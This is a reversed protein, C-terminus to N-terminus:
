TSTASRTPPASSLLGGPPLAASVAGAVHHPTLRAGARRAARRPPPVVDADRTRWEELWPRARPGAARGERQRGSPRRGRAPGTSWPTCTTAPTPGARPRRVAVVEVDDRSLLRTVPRSLTPHGFVVVREIRAALDPDGLLLRYTRIANDGTRSGSTPEALLPWGAPRPSCGRRRGPTTGPSWSPACATARGARGARRTAGGTDDVPRRGARRRAREGLRRRDDPVLPEDFQVNLHVPGPRAGLRGAAVRRQPRRARAVRRGAAARGRRQGPARRPRGRVRARRRRLPRGPRHDPQGAHRAAAGAPRRHRVLLPVGAHSAELVAPHLNAVATGSTTVVAVPRRSTRAIGLALFGASREDIRTHLTLAGPQARRVAAFALPRAARARPGARRARVGCRVLEDLRCRPWPPRPTRAPDHRLSRQDRRAPGALAARAGTRRRSGSSPPPTWAGPTRRAARRRRPLLSAIPSTTPSCSSPRSAAPTPCSRCPPPWRWVPPSASARRSRAAVGRRAPRHGRRDAPLGPGRRAAAGQAGRRRRGRPRPGPLPGRGPPDVRRRRDARRGPTARRGPGRRRRGAARRVGARRRGPGAAPDATVAEDVSWLATPTSASGATPASPTASRRSGPRRRRGPDARARRGQGQRHPLRQECPRDAARARTWPPSRSTSRSARRAAARALGRRRGRPGGRLWPAAVRADYELFPSFEGWGAAGRLLVGERVTIGRFRTTM